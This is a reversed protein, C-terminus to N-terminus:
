GVLEAVVQEYGKRFQPGAADLLAERYPPLGGWNEAFRGEAVHMRAERLGGLYDVADSFNWGEAVLDMPTRDM